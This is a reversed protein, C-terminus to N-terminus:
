LSMEWLCHLANIKHLISPLVWSTWLHANIEIFRENIWMSEVNYFFKMHSKSVKFELSWIFRSIEKYNFYQFIFSIYFYHNFSTHTHCSCRQITQTQISILESSTSLPSCTSTSTSSYECNDPIHIAGQALPPTSSLFSLPLLLLLTLPLGPSRPGRYGTWRRQSVCMEWHGMFLSAPCGCVWWCVWVSVCELSRPGEPSCPRTCLQAKLQKLTHTHTHSANVTWVRISGRPWTAAGAAPQPPSFLFSSPPLSPPSSVSPIVPLVFSPHHPLFSPPLSPVCPLSLPPSFASVDNIEDFM